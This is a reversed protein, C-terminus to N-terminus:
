RKKPMAAATTRYRQEGGGEGEDAGDETASSPMAESIIRMQSPADDNHCRDANAGNDGVVAAADRPQM